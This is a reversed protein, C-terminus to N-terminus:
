ADTWADFGPTTRTTTDRDHRMVFRAAMDHCMAFDFGAEAGMVTLATAWADAQMADRAVVTVAALAQTVPEGSRPDLTHSYVRGDREFRHWRDGSTAAAMEQLRLVCPDDSQADVGDVDPMADVLVRWPTGDPKRGYAYVEGGVDVLAADVGAERLYAAVVDVGFGKAIASLDISVGGPQWASRTEPQLRVAQWGVRRHAAALTDADPVSYSASGSGFGWSDTLPGVTPDYAGGSARAVDLACALVEFLADPLAQWTASDARNFRSLDSDREWTSMQAVVRDLQTQIGDHLAHLSQRPTPVLAVRWRTGMTEGYLTDIAPLSATANAPDLIIPLPRYAELQAVRPRLRYM